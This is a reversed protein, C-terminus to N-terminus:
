AVILQNDIRTAEENHSQIVKKFQETQERLISATLPSKIHGAVIMNWLFRLQSYDGTLQPIYHFHIHPITQFAERGNKQLLLYSSTQYLSGIAAHVMKIVSMMRNVEHTTLDEFREVHRKPIVLSHGANIPRYSLLAIVLDDQYFSQNTLIEQNCFACKKPLPPTTDFKKIAYFLVLLIALSLLTGIRKLKM